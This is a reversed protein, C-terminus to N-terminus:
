GDARVLKLHWDMLKNLCHDLVKREIPSLTDLLNENLQSGLRDAEAALRRGAPTPDIRLQRADDGCIRREVLKKAVLTSILRSLATREFMAIDVIESVTRGPKEAAIRLVRLERIDIGFRQRYITSAEARVFKSVLELRYSLYERYPAADANKSKSLPRAAM